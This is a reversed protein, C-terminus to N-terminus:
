EKQKDPLPVSRVGKADEGTEPPCGVLVSCSVGLALVSATVSGGGLGRGTVGIAGAEGRCGSTLVGSGTLMLDSVCASGACDAGAGLLTM